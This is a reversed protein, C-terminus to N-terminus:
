RSNKLKSEDKKEASSLIRIINGCVTAEEEKFAQLKKELEVNDGLSVPIYKQLVDIYLILTSAQGNFLTPYDFTRKIKVLQDICNRMFLDVQQGKGPSNAPQDKNWAAWTESLVAPLIAKITPDNLVSTEKSEEPSFLTKYAELIQVCKTIEQILNQRDHM